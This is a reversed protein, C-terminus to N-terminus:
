IIKIKTKKDIIKLMILFDNKNIAICGATPKYNNTLHLFICSGKGLIRKKYNYKIPILLDYKEDNRFLKEHKIKNGIKILKNYYKKNKVDDCWGMSKSIPISRLKTQIKNIKDKRYYLNEIDFIGKPTKKDGEVKNNSIGNKGIVCKFSFDDVKLTQKNKLYIIM